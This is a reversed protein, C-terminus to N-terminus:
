PGVDGIEAISRDQYFRFWHKADHYFTNEEDRIASWVEKGKHTLWLNTDSFRAVGL